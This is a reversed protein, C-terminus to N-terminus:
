KCKLAMKIKRITHCILDNAEKISQKPLSTTALNELLMQFGITVLSGGYVGNDNKEFIDNDNDVASYDQVISIGNPLLGVFSSDGEKMVMNIDQSGVTAYVLLSGTTDTCTDQFILMNNQKASTSDGDARLLYISSELNQDKSVRVLEQIPGNCSLVDWQSRTKNNIFFEFLHQQKVPLRITKIACLVIGIPETHDGISTRMMLKADVGNELQVIEWKHTTACVAACFKRTMSQALMRIGIHDKSVITPDVFSKMVRLFESQRQLGAICRQAGFVLGTKVLPRYLHHVHNENYQMHEIWIVKSYGDVMDQIICGSPLRRCSQIECQQSGKQITDISVDVVVWLGEAHKQCFRLCKIECSPIMDSIIQLESVILLLAGSKNGSIGRSIVEITNTKGVICPFMDMWQDKNMLTEVLTQSNHVMKCTARTAETIFHEPKMSIIPTFASDYEKLNLTEGDGDLNRFWLPEGNQALKLLEDSADLALNLLTSKDFTGELSTTPDYLKEVENTLRKVEDELQAQENKLQHEDVNINMSITKGHCQGCTPSKMMEKMSIYETHLKDYEQKLLKSEHQESQSKMRSRKNQFWYNVQKSGMSLKTALELRITADPYRDEKFAVELEQIQKDSHKMRKSSKGRQSDLEDGSVLENENEKESMDKQDEM